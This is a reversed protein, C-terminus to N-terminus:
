ARTMDVAHPLIDAIADLCETAAKPSGPLNVILTRNRVGCVQRSLYALNTPSGSRMLEAIGPAEREIVTRTAEPTIDRPGLGTGGNTIVLDAIGEDCWKKLKSAIEDPEDPVIARDVLHEFRREIAPGTEDEREGRACRDSVTLVAVRIQEM